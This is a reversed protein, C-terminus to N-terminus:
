WTTYVRVEGRAGDSGNTNTGNGAGGGGPINGVGGNVGSTGGNGGYGSVGAPLNDFASGAGGGFLVSPALTGGGTYIQTTFDVGSKGADGGTGQTDGPNTGTHSGGGGSGGTAEYVGFSSTGGGAGNGYSGTKGLGGAGVVVAVTAALDSAKVTNSHYGGGGAGNGNYNSMRGGGGGGGWIEFRVMATSPAAVPKTWTGSATFIQENYGSSVAIAEATRLATMARTNNLGAIADANSAFTQNPEFKGNTEDLTGIIIWGSNSENRKKLQHNVTDYWLMDASTSSPAAAGSNVTKIAALASNLDTRAAPAGLNEIVYDHQSM